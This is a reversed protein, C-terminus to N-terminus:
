RYHHDSTALLRAPDSFSTITLADMASFEIGGCSLSWSYELSAGSNLTFTEPVEPCLVLPETPTPTATPADGVFVTTCHEEELCGNPDQITGCFVGNDDVTIIEDTQGDSWVWTWGEPIAPNLVAEGSGDCPAVFEPLVIDVSAISINACVEVGDEHCENSVNVCYLGTTSVTLTEGTEGMPTGDVTWEYILDPTDDAIPDLTVTGDECLFEDELQPAPEYQSSIHFDADDSGCGNEITVTLNLDEPQDYSYTNELVDDTGPAPWDITATGGIDEIDVEFTFAEGDCLTVDDNNIDISPPLTVEIEYTYSEFCADDSFEIVHMGYGGPTYTSNFEDDVSFDGGPGSVIEWTGKQQRSAVGQLIRGFLIVAQSIQFRLTTKIAATSCSFYTTRMEMELPPTTLPSINVLSSLFQTSRSLVPAPLSSSKAMWLLPSTLAM